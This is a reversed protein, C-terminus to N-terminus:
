LGTMSKLINYLIFVLLGIILLFLIRLKKIKLFQKFPNLIVFILGILSTIFFRPYRLINNWFDDM